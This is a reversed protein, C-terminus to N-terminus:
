TEGSLDRGRIWLRRSVLTLYGEHAHNSYVIFEALSAGDMPATTIRALRPAAKM